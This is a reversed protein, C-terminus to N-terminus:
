RRRPTGLPRKEGPKRMLGRYAISNAVMCAAHWARRIKRSKVTRIVILEENHLKRLGGEVEIRKPGFIRRPMRNEFV